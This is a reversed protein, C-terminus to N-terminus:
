QNTIKNNHKCDNHVIRNCLVSYLMTRTANISCLISLSNVCQFQSQTSKDYENTASRIMM